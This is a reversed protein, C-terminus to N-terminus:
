LLKPKFEWDPALFRRVVEDSWSESIRGADVDHVLQDVAVFKGSLSNGRREFFEANSLAVAVDDTQARWEYVIAAHQSTKGGEDAYVAGLLRLEAPEVSIRLEEQLERVACGLLSSGDEADEKRVHGGAWIVFEGHLPNKMDQEKRKLRLVDGKANRVVVVPLAQVRTPDAEVAARARFDGDSLFAEILASSHVADAYRMKNFIGVITGKDLSLIDEQLQEEIWDLVKDVVAECAKPQTNFRPDSTDVTFLRFQKELRATTENVVVRCQELVDRNMISGEHGIVPLVGQERKLADDASVSMVFVGSIRQRWEDALLFREVEEREAKRIRALREMLSLWWISDFLGRDLILIDPDETRPPVQTKELIQALTTCATWINFNSHKKDRIPCISAREIVVSTVFGCRKLFAQVQNLTSTKGAKPVGAFEIVLPSRGSVKFRQAAEEARAQRTRKTSM